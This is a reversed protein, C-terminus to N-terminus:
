GVLLSDSLFFFTKTPISLSLSLSLSLSVEVEEANKKKDTIKSFDMQHRFRSAEGRHGAGRKVKEESRQLYSLPGVILSFM